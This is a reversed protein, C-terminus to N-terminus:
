RILGEVKAIAGSLTATNVETMPEILWTNEDEGPKRYYVQFSGAKGNFHNFSLEVHSKVHCSARYCAGSLESILDTIHPLVGAEVDRVAKARKVSDWKKTTNPSLGYAAALQKNNM